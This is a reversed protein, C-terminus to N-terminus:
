LVLGLIECHTFKSMLKILEIMFILTDSTTDSTTDFSNVFLLLGWITDDTIPVCSPLTLESSDILIVVLEVFLKVM